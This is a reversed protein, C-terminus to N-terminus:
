REGLGKFSFNASRPKRMFSKFAATQSPRTLVPCTVRSLWACATKCCYVEWGSCHLSCRGKVLSKCGDSLVGMSLVSDAMMNLLLAILMPPWMSALLSGRFGRLHYGQLRICYGAHCPGDRVM